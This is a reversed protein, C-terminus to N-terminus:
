DEMDDDTCCDDEDEDYFKYDGNCSNDRWIEKKDAIYDNQERWYCARVSDFNKVNPSYLRIIKSYRLLDPKVFDYGGSQYILQDNVVVFPTLTNPNIRGYQDQSIRLGFMGTELKPMKPQCYPLIEDKLTDLCENCVDFSETLFASDENDLEKLLGRIENIKKSIAMTKDFTYDNSMM